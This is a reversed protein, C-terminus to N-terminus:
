ATTGPPIQVVADATDNFYMRPTVTSADNDTTSIIVAGSNYGLAGYHTSGNMIQFGLLEGDAVFGDSGMSCNGFTGTSGTISGKVEVASGTFRLYTDTGVGIDFRPTGSNNELIYGTGSGYASKGAMIQGAANMTVGTMDSTIATTITGSSIKSEM